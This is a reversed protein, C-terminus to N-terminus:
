RALDGRSILCHSSELQLRANLRELGMQDRDAGPVRRVPARGRPDTRCIMGEHHQRRGDSLAGADGLSSSWGFRHASGFEAAGGDAPIHRVSPRVAITQQLRRRWGPLGCRGLAAGLAGLM